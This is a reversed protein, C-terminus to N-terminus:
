IFSVSAISEQHRNKVGHNVDARERAQVFGDFVGARAMDHRQDAVFAIHHTRMGDRRLVMQPQPQM